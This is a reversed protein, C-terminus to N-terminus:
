RLCKLTWETGRGESNPVLGQLYFLDIGTRWRIRADKVLCAVM